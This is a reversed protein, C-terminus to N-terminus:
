LLEKKEKNYEKETIIGQDLLQKLKTLESYLDSKNSVNIDSQNDTNVNITPDKTSDFDGLCGYSDVKGNVLRVYYPKTRGYFADDGTESLRYNLYETNKTASTSVPKGIKAIVEEKTMGVEVRSIKHATACGVLFIGM